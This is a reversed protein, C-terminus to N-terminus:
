VAVSRRLEELTVYEGRAIAEEGQRVQELAEDSLTDGDSLLRRVQALVEAADIDDLEDILKHLEEKATM